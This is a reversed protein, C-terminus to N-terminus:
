MSYSIVSDNLDVEAISVYRDNVIKPDDIIYEGNKFYGTYTFIDRYEIIIEEQLDLNFIDDKNLARVDSCSVVEAKMFWLILQQLANENKLLGTLTFEPRFVPIVVGNNLNVEKFTDLRDDIIFTNKPNMLLDLGPVSYMYKLPKEIRGKDKKCQPFSFIIHPQPLGEFIIKCISHVYETQGASWVCVVKFYSFLFLLFERLHPRIIGALESVVGLGKENVVDTLSLKYVRNRLTLAKPNRYINIDKIFTLNEISNLLTEDLDLSICKDTLPTPRILDADTLYLSM